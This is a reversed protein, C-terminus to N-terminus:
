YYRINELNESLKETNKIAINPLFIHKVIHESTGKIQISM